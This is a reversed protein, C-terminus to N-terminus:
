WMRILWLRDLRSRRQHSGRRQSADPTASLRVVSAKGAASMTAVLSGKDNIAKIDHLVADVPVDVGKTKLLTTVDNAQDNKWIM